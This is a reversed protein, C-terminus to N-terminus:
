SRTCSTICFSKGYDGESNTWKAGETLGADSWLQESQASNYKYSEEIRVQEGARIFAGEVTVDENPSVFAEHRDTESDYRGIVHWKAIDFADYGLLTNAQKLGGLIFDHTLGQRDNYAHYVKDPNTCADIGLLLTDDPNLIGSFQSLFKAAEHRSFNGISSGLSLITKSRCANEPKKLWDFGEDYTGHLGHCQVHKFTGHPVEALTRELEVQSVDLAYYSVNKGKRDLADLLIRVKRLNSYM